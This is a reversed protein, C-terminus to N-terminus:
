GAAWDVDPNVSKLWDMGLIADYVKMDVAECTMNMVRHLAKSSRPPFGPSSPALTPSPPVSRYRRSGLATEYNASSPAPKLHYIITPT